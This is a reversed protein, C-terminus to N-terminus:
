GDQRFTLMVSKGFCNELQNKFQNKFFYWFQVTNAKSVIKIWHDRVYYRSKLSFNYVVAYFQFMFKWFFINQQLLVALIKLLELSSERHQYLIM